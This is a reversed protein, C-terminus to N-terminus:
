CVSLCVVSRHKVSHVCLLQITTTPTHIYTTLLQRHKQTTQATFRNSEGNEADKDDVSVGNERDRCKGIM